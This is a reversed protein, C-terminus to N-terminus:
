TRKGKLFEIRIDVGRYPRLQQLVCSYAADNLPQGDLQRWELELKNKFILVGDAVHCNKRISGLVSKTLQQGSWEVCKMNPLPDYTRETRVCRHEISGFARISAIKWADAARPYDKAAALFESRYAAKQRENAVTCLKLLDGFSTSAWHWFAPTSPPRGIAGVPATTSLCSREPNDGRVTIALSTQWGDDVVSASAFGDSSRWILNVKTWANAVHFIPIGTNRYKETEVTFSAFQEREYTTEASSSSASALVTAFFLISRTKM